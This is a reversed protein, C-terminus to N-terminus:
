EGGRKQIRALTEIMRERGDVPATGSQGAGAVSQSLNLREAPTETTEPEDDSQREPAMRSLRLVDTLAAEGLTETQFGATELRSLAIKRVEDAESKSLVVSGEPLEPATTTEPTSTDTQKSMERQGGNTRELAVASTNPDVPLFTLTAEQVLMHRYVVCPGDVDRGNWTESEGAPIEHTVTKPTSYAGVSQQVPMDNQLYHIYELQTETRTMLQGATNLQRGGDEADTISPTCFGLPSTDPCHWLAVVCKEPVVLTELDILFREWGDDVVQGSYLVGGFAVPGGEDGQQDERARMAVPRSLRIKTDAVDSM